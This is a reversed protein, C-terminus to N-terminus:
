HKVAELAHRFEDASRFRRAPDTAVACAIAADLDHPCDERLSRLSKPKRTGATRTLEPLSAVPYPFDGTLLRFCTVGLAYVDTQANGAVNAVLCEPAVYRVSGVVDCNRVVTTLGAVDLSRALGIDAVKLIGDRTLLLNSPKLGGHVVGASHAYAVASAAAIAYNVVDRVPLPGQREFLAGLDGGQAYEMSIFTHGDARNMDYIRIINPHSLQGSTRADRLFRAVAEPDATLEDHLIKLAVLRGMSLQDAKYVAGISGKGLLQVIEYRGIVQGLLPCGSVCAACYVRTQTQRATLLADLPVMKGCSACLHPPVSQPEEVPPAECRFLLQALGVQLRDGDRLRAESIRAGNVFTGNKSGLDRVFCGDPTTRVECHLRSIKSDHIQIVCDASRGITVPKEGDAAFQSVPKDDKLLIIAARL